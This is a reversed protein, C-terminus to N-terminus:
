IFFHKALLARTFRQRLYFGRPNERVEEGEEDLTWTLADGRAAKPRIQLVKGRRANLQWVQGTGILDTLEEWDARLQAEEEADPTWLLPTGVIRDGPAEDGVIPMWLVRSLKKRVWSDQWTRALSGDLPATAVFTSQKTLGQADIPLTKLEVGLQPFDPEARSSATAGLAAELLIGIWGKNRRLDPPVAFHHDHAISRLPRGALSEARAM